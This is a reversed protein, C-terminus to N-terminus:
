KQGASMARIYAVIDKGHGDGLYFTPMRLHSISISNELDEELSRSGYRALVESFPPAEPHPSAKGAEIAHCSACFEQAVARGEVPDGIHPPPESTQCAALLVALSTTAAVTCTRIM